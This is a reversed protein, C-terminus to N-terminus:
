RGGSVSLPVILNEGQGNLQVQGPQVAVVRWGAIEESPQVWVGLPNQPSILFAKALGGSIFVGKLTINQDLGSPQPPPPVPASALVVRVAGQRNRSFLPRQVINDFTAPSRAVAGRSAASSAGFWDPLSVASIEVSAVAAVTVVAVLVIWGSLGAILVRTAPRLDAVETLGPMESRGLLAAFRFAVWRRPAGTAWALRGGAAAPAAAWMGMLGSLLRPMRM